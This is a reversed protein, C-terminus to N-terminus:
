LDMFCNKVFIIDTYLMGQQSDRKSGRHSASSQPLGRRLSMKSYSAVFIPFTFNNTCYNIKHITTKVHGLLPGINRPARSSASMRFSFVCISQTCWANYAKRKYEQIAENEEM